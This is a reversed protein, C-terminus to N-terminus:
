AAAASWEAGCQEQGESESNFGARASAVSSRRCSASCYLVRDWNAARWRRWVITGGCVTCVKRPTGPNNLQPAASHRNM